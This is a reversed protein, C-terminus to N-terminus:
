GGCPCLALPVRRPWSGPQGDVRHGYLSPEVPLKEKLTPRWAFSSIFYRM